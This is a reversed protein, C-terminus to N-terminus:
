KFNLSLVVRHAGKVLAQVLAPLQHILKDLKDAPIPFDMEGDGPEADMSDVIGELSLAMSGFSGLQVTQDVPTLRFIRKDNSDYGSIALQIKM